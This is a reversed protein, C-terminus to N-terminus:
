CYTYKIGLSNIHCNRICSIYELGAIPHHLCSSSQRVHRLTRIEKQEAKMEVLKAPVRGELSCSTFNM